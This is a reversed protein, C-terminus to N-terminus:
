MVKLDRTISDTIVFEVRKIYRILHLKMQYSSAFHKSFHKWILIPKKKIHFLKWLTSITHQGKIIVLSQAVYKAAGNM